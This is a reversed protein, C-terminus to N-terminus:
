EYSLVERISKQAAGRAPLYSAGFAILLALALWFFLALQSFRFLLREGGFALGVGDSM